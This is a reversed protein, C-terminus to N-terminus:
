FQRRRKVFIILVLVIFGISGSIVIIQIMGLFSNMDTTQSDTINPENYIRLEIALPLQVASYTEPFVTTGALYIKDEGVSIYSSAQAHFTGGYPLYGLSKNWLQDGNSNYKVLLHDRKAFEIFDVLLYLSGDSDIAIAGASLEEQWEGYWLSVSRNWLQLGNTDWKVIKYASFSEHGVAYISGDSNVAMANFGTLNAIEWIKQGDKDWKIINYCGFTYVNENSDVGVNYAYNVSSVDWIHSWIINGELDSKVLIARFGSIHGDSGFVTEGGSAYISENNAIALSLITGSIGWSQSWLLNGSSDWKILYVGGRSRGNTTYIYDGLSTIATGWDSNSGYSSNWIPLGTTKNWKIVIHGPKDHAYSSMGVTYPNGNSITLGKCVIGSGDTWNGIALPEYVYPTVSYDRVLARISIRRVSVEVEGNYNRWPEPYTGSSCFRFNETPALGVSITVNKSNWFAYTLKGLKWSSTNNHISYDTSYPHSSEYLKAWYGSSGTVWVYVKFMSLGIEEELFTGSIKVAFDISLNAIYVSKLQHWDFTQVFRINDWCQPFEDDEDYYNFALPTNATHAWTLNIYNYDNADQAEHHLWSFEGSSGNTIVTPPNSLSEDPILQVDSFNSKPEQNSLNM